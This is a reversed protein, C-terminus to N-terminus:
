PHGCEISVARLPVPNHPLKFLMRTFSGLILLSVTSKILLRENKLIKLFPGHSSNLRLLSEAPMTLSRAAPTAFYQGFAKTAIMEFGTLEVTGIAASTKLLYTQHIVEWKLIRSRCKSTLGLNSGRGKVRLQKQSPQLASRTQHSSRFRLGLSAPSSSIVWPLQQSHGLQINDSCVRKYRLNQAHIGLLDRHRHNTTM